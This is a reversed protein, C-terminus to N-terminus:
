NSPCIREATGVMPLTAYDVNTKIKIVELIKALDGNPNIPKDRLEQKVYRLIISVSLYSKDNAEISDMEYYRGIARQIDDGNHTNWRASFFRGIQGGWATAFGFLHHKYFGAYEALLELSKWAHNTSADPIVDGESVNQNKECQNYKNMWYKVSKPTLPAPHFKKYVENANIAAYDVGTKMKIVKLINAFDGEPNFAKGKTEIKVCALIYEVSFFAPALEDKKFFQEIAHEVDNAFHTNWRGSTLRNFQSGFPVHTPFDAYVSFLELTKRANDKLVEEPAIVITRREEHKEWDFTDFVSRREIYEPTREDPKIQKPVLVDDESHQDLQAILEKPPKNYIDLWYKLPKPM